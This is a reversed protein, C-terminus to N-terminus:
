YYYTLALISDHEHQQSLFHAAGTDSTKRFDSVVLVLFVAVRIISSAIKMTIQPKKIM